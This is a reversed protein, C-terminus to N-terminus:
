IPMTLRIRRWPPIAELAYARWNTGNADEECMNGGRNMSIDNWFLASGLLGINVARRRIRASPLFLGAIDKKM